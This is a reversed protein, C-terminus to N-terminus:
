PRAEEPAGLELRSAQPSVDRCCGLTVLWDGGHVFVGEVGRVDATRGVRVQEPAKFAWLGERLNARHIGVGALWGHANGGQKLWAQLRRLSVWAGGDIRRLFDEFGAVPHPVLPEDTRVAISLSYNTVATWAQGGLHVRGVKGPGHLSSSPRVYRKLWAEPTM